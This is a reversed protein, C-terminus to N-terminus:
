GGKKEPFIGTKIKLHFYGNFYLLLPHGGEEELPKLIYILPLAEPTIFVLFVNFTIFANEASENFSTQYMSGRIEIVISECNWLKSRDDSPTHHIGRWGAVSLYIWESNLHNVRESLFAACTAWFFGILNQFPVDNNLIIIVITM